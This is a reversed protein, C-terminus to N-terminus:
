SLPFVYPTLAYLYLFLQVNLPNAAQFEAILIRTEPVGVGGTPDFVFGLLLVLPALIICAALCARHFKRYVPDATRQQNSQHSLAMIFDKREISRAHSIM